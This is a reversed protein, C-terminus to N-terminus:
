GCGRRVAWIALLLLTREGDGEGWNCARDLGEPVGGCTRRERPTQSKQPMRSFGREREGAWREKGRELTGKMM